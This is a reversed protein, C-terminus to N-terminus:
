DSLRPCLKSKSRKKLGTSDMFACLDELITHV